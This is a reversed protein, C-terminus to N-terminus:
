LIYLDYSHKTENKKGTPTIEILKEVDTIKESKILLISYKDHLEGLSIPIYCINM